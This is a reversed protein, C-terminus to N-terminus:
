ATAVLARSPHCTPCPRVQEGDATIVTVFRASPDTAGNPDCDGCWDPLTPITRQCDDCNRRRRTHRRCARRGGGAPPLPPIPEIPPEPSVPTVGPTDYTDGTDSQRPTLNDGEAPRSSAPDGPISLPLQDAFTLRYRSSNRGAQGGTDVTLQGMAELNRICRQVTRESVRARHALTRISPWALGTDDTFDAVAILVLLDTATAPSHDLAWAVARISM